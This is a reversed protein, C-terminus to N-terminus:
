VSCVLTIRHLSLGFNVCSQGGIDWEVWAEKYLFYVAEPDLDMAVSRAPDSEAAAAAMVDAAENLGGGRTPM